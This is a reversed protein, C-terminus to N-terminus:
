NYMDQLKKLQNTEIMYAAFDPDNKYEAMVFSYLEKRSIKKEKKFIKNILKKM